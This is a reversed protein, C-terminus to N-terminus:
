ELCFTTGPPDLYWGTRSSAGMFKSTFTRGGVRNRAELLLVKNGRLACDRAAVLGAFGAGVVIVDYEAGSSIKKSGATASRELGAAIAKSAIVSGAITIGAAKLFNRRNKNEDFISM